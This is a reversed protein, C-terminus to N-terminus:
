CNLRDVVLDLVCDPTQTNICDMASLLLDLVKMLDAKFRGERYRKCTFQVFVPSFVKKSPMEELVSVILRYTCVHPYESNIASNPLLKPVLLLVAISDDVYKMVM